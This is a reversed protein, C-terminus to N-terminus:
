IDVGGGVVAQARPEDRGTVVVKAGEEVFLCATDRGMGSTSGHHDSSEMWSEWTRAQKRLIQPFSLNSGCFWHMVCFM